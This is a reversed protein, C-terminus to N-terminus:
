NGAILMTKVFDVFLVMFHVIQKQITDIANQQIEFDYKNAKTSALSDVDSLNAKM